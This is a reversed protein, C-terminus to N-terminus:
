VQMQRDERIEHRRSQFVNEDTAIVPRCPFCQKRQQPCVGKVHVLSHFLRELYREKMGGLHFKIGGWNFKIGRKM